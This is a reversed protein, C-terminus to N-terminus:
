SALARLDIRRDELRQVLRATEEPVMALLVPQSEAEDYLVLVADYQKLLWAAIGQVRTRVQQPADEQVLQLFTPLYLSSQERADFNMGLFLQEFVDLYADPQAQVRARTAEYVDPGLAQGTFSGGVVTMIDAKISKKDGSFSSPM